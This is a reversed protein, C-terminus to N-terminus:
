DLELKKERAKGAEEAADVVIRLYSRHLRHGSKGLGRAAESARVLRLAVRKAKGNVDLGFLWWRGLSQLASELDGAGLELEMALREGVTELRQSYVKLADGISGKGFDVDSLETIERGM